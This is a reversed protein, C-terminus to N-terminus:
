RKTQSEETVSVFRSFVTPHVFCFSQGDWPLSRMSSGEVISEPQFGM